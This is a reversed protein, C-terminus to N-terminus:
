RKRLKSKRKEIKVLDYPSDAKHVKKTFIYLSDAYFGLLDYESIHVDGRKLDALITGWNSPLNMLDRM